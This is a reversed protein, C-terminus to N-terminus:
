NDDNSFTTVYSTVCTIHQYGGLTLLPGVDLLLLATPGAIVLLTAAPPRTFHTTLSASLDRQSSNNTFASVSLSPYTLPASILPINRLDPSCCCTRACMHYFRNIDIALLKKVYQDNHQKIHWANEEQAVHMQIIIDLIKHLQQKNECMVKSIAISRHM